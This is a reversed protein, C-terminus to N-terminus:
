QFPIQCQIASTHGAHHLTIQNVLYPFPVGDPSLLKSSMVQTQILAQVEGTRWRAPHLIPPVDPPPVQQHAIGLLTFFYYCVSECLAAVTLRPFRQGMYPDAAFEPQMEHYGAYTTLLAVKAWEWVADPQALVQDVQQMALARIGLMLAIYDTSFPAQEPGKARPGIVQDLLYRLEEDDIDAGSVGIRSLEEVLERKNMARTSGALRVVDRASKRVTAYSQGRWYATWTRMARRVQKLSVGGLEGWYVWLWVPINCLPGNERVHLKQRQHLLSLFLNRQHQSWRATSGSGHARGPWDRDEANGLLGAQVWDDILRASAKSGMSAAQALMDERTYFGTTKEDQQIM